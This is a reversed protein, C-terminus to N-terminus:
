RPSMKWVSTLFKLLCNSETIARASPHEKLRWTQEGLEERKIPRLAKACQMLFFFTYPPCTEMKDGKPDDQDKSRQGLSFLAWKWTM